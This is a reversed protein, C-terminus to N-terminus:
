SVRVPLACSSVPDFTLVEQSCSRRSGQYRCTTMYHSVLPSPSSNFVIYFCQLFLFASSSLLFSSPASLWPDWFTHDGASLDHRGGNGSWPVKGFPVTM